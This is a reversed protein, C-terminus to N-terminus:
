RADEIVYMERRDDRGVTQYIVKRTHLDLQITMGRSDDQLYVSWDDRNVERFHFSADPSHEEWSRERRQEFDGIVRGDGRSYYVRRAMWGNIKSSSDAIDYRDHKRGDDFYSVKKRYLDLQVRRDRSAERLYVSWEDRGTEVYERRDEGRLSQSFWTDRGNQLFQGARRGDMDSYVVLTVDRGNAPQAAVSLSGLFLGAGLAVGILSKM